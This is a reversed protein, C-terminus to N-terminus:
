AAVNVSVKLCTQGCSRRSSNNEAGTSLSSWKRPRRNPKRSTVCSRSSSRMFVSNTECTDCSSRVGNVAMLPKVSMTRSPSAPSTFSSCASYRPITLDFTSRSMARILSRSSIARMSDPRTCSLSSGVSTASITLSTPCLRRGSTSPFFWVSDVSISGSSGTAMAVAVPHQLDDGVQDAIGVLVRLLTPRDDNPRASEVVAHQADLDLVVPHADRRLVHRLQERAEEADVARQRTLDAPRAQSQRDHLRDDLQVAPRDRHVARRALARGEPEGQRDGARSSRLRARPAPVPRASRAGPPRRLRPRPDLEALSAVPHLGRLVRRVRQLLRLLLPGVQDHQPQPEGVSTAEFFRVTQRFRGLAVANRQQHDRLGLQWGAGQPRGHVISQQDVAHLACQGLIAMPAHQHDLVVGRNAAQEARVEAVAAELGDLSGVALAPKLQRALAVGVQHNQVQMQGPMSPKVTRCRSFCVGAVAAVGTMATVPLSPSSSPARARTSASPAESKTSFGKWM